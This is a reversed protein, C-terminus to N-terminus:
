RELGAADAKPESTAQDIPIIELHDGADDPIGNGNDAHRGKHADESDRLIRGYEVLKDPTLYAAIVGALWPIGALVPDPVSVGSATIAWMILATIFGVAGGAAVKTTPMKDTSTM